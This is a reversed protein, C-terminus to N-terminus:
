FLNSNWNEKNFFRVYLSDGNERTLQFRDRLTKAKEFVNGKELHNLITEFERDSFVTNNFAELQKKLNHILADSTTITVKEYGLGVLQAILENELQAESQKSM